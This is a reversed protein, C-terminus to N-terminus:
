QKPAILILGLEDIGLRAKPAVGDGRRGLELTRNRSRSRGVGVIKSRAM